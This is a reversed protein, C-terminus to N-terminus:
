LKKLFREHLTVPFVSSKSQVFIDVRATSTTCNGDESLYMFQAKIDFNENPFNLKQTCNLQPIDLILNKFFQLHLQAQSQLYYISQTNSQLTNTFLIELALYSFLSIMFLTLLLAFSKKM